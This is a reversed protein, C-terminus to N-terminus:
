SVLMVCFVCVLALISLLLAILLLTNSKKLEENHKALANNQMELLKIQEQEQQTNKVSQPQPKLEDFM